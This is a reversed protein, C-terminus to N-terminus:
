LAAGPDGEEAEKVGEFWDARQAVRARTSKTRYSAVSRDVSGWAAKVGVPSAAFNSTHTAAVGM